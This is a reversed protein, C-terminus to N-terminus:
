TFLRSRFRCYVALLIAYKKNLMPIYIPKYLKDLSKQVSVITINPQLKVAIKQDGKHIPIITCLKLKRLYIGTKVYPRHYTTRERPKETWV